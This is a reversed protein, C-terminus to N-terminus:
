KHSFDGLFTLIYISGALSGVEMPGVLDSHVLELVHSTTSDSTPFALHHFRKLSDFNLHAMRRHWINIDTFQMSYVKDTSPLYLELIGDVLTATAILQNASNYVRSVHTDSTNGCNSVPLVMNGVTDSLM